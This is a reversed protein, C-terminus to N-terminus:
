VPDVVIPGPRAGSLERDMKLRYELESIQEKLASIHHPTGPPDFKLRVVLYVYTQIANLAPSSITDGTFDAWEEDDGSVTFGSPPGIGLQYLTFFATNIHTMVDHDFAHYGEDLGLNKKTGKLVSTEVAM